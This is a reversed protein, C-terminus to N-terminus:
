RNNNQPTKCNHKEYYRKISGEKFIREIETNNKTNFDNFNQMITQYVQIMKPLNNTNIHEEYIQIQSFIFLEEEKILTDMEENYTELPKKSEEEIIFEKKFEQQFKELGINEEKEMEHNQTFKVDIMYTPDLELSKNNAIQITGEPTYNIKEFINTPFVLEGKIYFELEIHGEGGGDEVGKRRIEDILHTEGKNDTFEFNTGNSTINGM